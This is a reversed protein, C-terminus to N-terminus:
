RKHELKGHLKGLAMTLRKATQENRQREFECAAEYIERICASKFLLLGGRFLQDDATLAKRWGANRKQWQAVFLEEIAWRLRMWWLDSYRSTVHEDAKKIAKWAATFAKWALVIRKM